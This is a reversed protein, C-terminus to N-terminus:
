LEVGMHRVLGMRRPHGLDSLKRMPDLAGCAVEPHLCQQLGAREELVIGLHAEVEAHM